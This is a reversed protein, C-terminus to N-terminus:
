TTLFTWLKKGISVNGPHETDSEDEEEGDYEREPTRNVDEESAAASEGTRKPSGADTEESDAM